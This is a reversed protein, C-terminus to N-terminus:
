IHLEFTHSLTNCMAFNLACTPINGLFYQNTNVKALLEKVPAISYLYSNNSSHNCAINYYELVDASYGFLM